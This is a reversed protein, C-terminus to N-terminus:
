EYIDARFGSLLVTAAVQRNLIEGKPRVMADIRRVKNNPTESVSVSILWEDEGLLIIDENSGLEPFEEKVLVSNLAYDALSLAVLKQNLRNVDSTAQGVSLILAISTFGLIAVAVMIEVLTFGRKKLNTKYKSIVWNKM